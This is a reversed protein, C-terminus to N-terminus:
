FSGNKKLELKGTATALPFCGNGNRVRCNLEEAGITSRAGLAHSLLDDGPFTRGRGKSPAQDLGRWPVAGLGWSGEPRTRRRHRHRRSRDLRPASERSYARLERPQLSDQGRPLLRFPTSSPLLSASFPAQCGRGGQPLNVPGRRFAGTRQFSSLPFSDAVL